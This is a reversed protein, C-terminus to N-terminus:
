ADSLTSTESAAQDSHTACRNSSHRTRQEKGASVPELTEILITRRPKSYRYVLSISKSNSSEMRRDLRWSSELGLHLRELADLMWCSGFRPFFPSEFCPSEIEKSLPNVHSIPSQLWDDNCSISPAIQCSLVRLRIEFGFARRLLQIWSQLM